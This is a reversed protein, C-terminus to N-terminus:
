WWDRFAQEFRVRAFPRLLVVLLLGHWKGGVALIPYARALYVAGSNREFSRKRFVAPTSAAFIV